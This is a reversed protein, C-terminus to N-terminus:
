SGEWRIEVGISGDALNRRMVTELSSGLLNRLTPNVSLSACSTPPDDPSRGIKHSSSYDFPLHVLSIPHTSSAARRHAEESFGSLSVLFAITPAPLRERSRGCAPDGGGLSPAEFGVAGELERVVGPGLKKAEAKCQVVVSWRKKSRKLSDRKRGLTGRMEDDRVVPMDWWGRLDVGRDNAGGVRLLGSLSLPPRSLFALTALEYATGLATPSPPPSRPTPFKIPRPPM